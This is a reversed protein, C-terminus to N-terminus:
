RTANRARRHNGAGLPWMMGICLRQGDINTPIVVYDVVVTSGDKQVIEAEGVSIGSAVLRMYEDQNLPNLRLTDGARHTEVDAMTFGTIELFRDNVALFRREDDFICAAAEAHALAERLLREDLKGAV